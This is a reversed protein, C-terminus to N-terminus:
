ASTRGTRIDCLEGKANVYWSGLSPCVINMHEAFAALTGPVVKGDVGGVGPRPQFRKAIEVLESAKPLWPKQEVWVQIAKDLYAPPIDSLDRALLALQAAHEELDAQVSPRYRLGLEAVLRKIASPVSRQSPKDFSPLPQAQGSETGVEMRNIIPNFDM